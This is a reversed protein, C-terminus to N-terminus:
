VTSVKTDTLKTILADVAMNILPYFSESNHEIVIQLCDLGLAVLKPNADKISAIGHSMLKIKLDNQHITIWM